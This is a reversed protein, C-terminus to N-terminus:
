VVGISLASCLSPFASACAFPTCIGRRWWGPDAPSQAAPRPRFLPPPSPTRITSSLLSFSPGRFPLVRPIIPVQNGLNLASFPPLQVPSPLFLSTRPVVQSAWFPLFACVLPPTRCAPAGDLHTTAGCGPSVHLSFRTCISYSATDVISLHLAIPSQDPPLYFCFSCYLFLYFSNHPPLALYFHLQSFAAADLTGVNVSQTKSYWWRM